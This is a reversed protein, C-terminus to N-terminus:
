SLLFLQLQLMMLTTAAANSCTAGAGTSTTKILNRICRVKWLFVAVFLLPLLLLLLSFMVLLRPPLGPLAGCLTPLWCLLFSLNLVYCVQRTICILRFHPCGRAVAGFYKATIFIGASKLSLVEYMYLYISDTLCSLIKVRRQCAFGNERGLAIIQSIRRILQHTM